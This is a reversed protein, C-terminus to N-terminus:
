DNPMVLGCPGLKDFGEYKRTNGDNYYDHVYQKKNGDDEKKTGKM